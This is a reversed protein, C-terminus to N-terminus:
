GLGLCQGGLEGGVKVAHIASRMEEMRGEQEMVEELRQQLSAADDPDINVRISDYDIEDEWPEDNAHTFTIPISISHIAKM